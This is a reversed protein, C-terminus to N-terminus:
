CGLPLSHWCQPWCTRSSMSHCCDPVRDEVISQSVGVQKKFYAKGDYTNLAIEGLELQTITPINGPVSSRKLKINVSM